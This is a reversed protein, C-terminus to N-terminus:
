NETRRGFELKLSVVMYVLFSAFLCKCLVLWYPKFLSYVLFVTERLQLSFTEPDPGPPVEM